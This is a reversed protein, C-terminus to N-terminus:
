TCTLCSIPNSCRAFLILRGYEPFIPKAAHRYEAVHRGQKHTPDQLGSCGPFGLLADNGTIFKWEGMYNQPTWTMGPASNVPQLVEETFVWPNMVIAGEVNAYAPNSWLPNIIAVQGKSADTSNTSMVWVPVRTFVGNVYNWRPPFLSIIHRFNKVVRSAGLRKIVPNLEGEQGQYAARYDQRLDANNLLVNKSADMGILLPFIPGDEGLTIWGNSNPDSAGLQILTQAQVDLLDQTLGCVAGASVATAVASLDVTSGPPQIAINGAVEVVSGGSTAIVKTSYNMYINALRNTISANNRKELAQFYKEWFDGSKWMLTLDDQCILPGILGFQEPNYTVEKYGVYTQNYTVTCSGNTAGPVTQIASWTEEDSSPESRGITFASRVLGAGIPWVSRPVLNLWPDRWSARVYLTEGLDESRLRLVDFSAPCPM